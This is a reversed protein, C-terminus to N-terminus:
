KEEKSKEEFKKLQKRYKYKLKEIHILQKETLEVGVMLQDYFSNIIKKDFRNVNIFTLLINLDKEVSNWKNKDNVM